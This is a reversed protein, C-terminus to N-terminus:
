TALTRIKATLTGRPLAAVMRNEKGIARGLAGPSVFVIPVSHHACMSTYKDRTNASSGADLLVLAARGFRVEKECMDNGSIVLGARMAIGLLSLARTEDKM